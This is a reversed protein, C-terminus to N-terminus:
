LPFIKKLLYSLCLVFLVFSFSVEVQRFRAPQCVFCSWSAAASDPLNVSPVAGARPLPNARSKLRFSEDLENETFHNACVREKEVHLIKRGCRQLWESRLVSDKPFRFLSLGPRARRSLGCHLVACCAM